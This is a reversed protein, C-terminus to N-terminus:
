FNLSHSILLVFLFVWSHPAQHQSFPLDIEATGDKKNAQVGRKYRIFIYDQQYQSMEIVPLM